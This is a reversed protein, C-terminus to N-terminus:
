RGGVMFTKGGYRGQFGGIRQETHRMVENDLAAYGASNAEYAYPRIPRRLRVIDRGCGAGLLARNAHL